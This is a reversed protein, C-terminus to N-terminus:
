FSGVSLSRLPPPVLIASLLLFMFCHCSLVPLSPVSGGCVACGPMKDKDGNDRTWGRSVHSSDTDSTVVCQVVINIVADVPLYGAAAALLQYRRWVAAAVGATDARVRLGAAGRHRTM